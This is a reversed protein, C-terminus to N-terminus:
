AAGEEGGFQLQYLRAYIGGQDILERHRGQERLEGHHFVLIRDASRITSLRHAIIVSTRGEVLRELAQQIRIETATDIHSTAEDLVLIEPDGALARAFSLLQREGSSLNRGREKMIEDLG